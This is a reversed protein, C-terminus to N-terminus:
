SWGARQAGSRLSPATIASPLPKGVQAPTLLAGGAVLVADCGVLRGVSAGGGGRGPDTGPGSVVGRRVLGLLAASLARVVCALAM